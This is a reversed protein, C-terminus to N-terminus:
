LDLEEWLESIPRSKCGGKVYEGYAETAIIIDYEDEIQQFLVRKFAEELSISHLRAYSEVLSKEEESLRILFSMGDDGKLYLVVCKM